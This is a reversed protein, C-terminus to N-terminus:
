FNIRLGGVVGLGIQADGGNWFVGPGAAVGFGVRRWKQPGPVEVIEKVLKTKQYVEIEDLAPRIGSVVARYNEDRYEKREVEQAAYLTDNIRLTDTVKVLEVRDIYKTVFVPKELRTTDRITLTDVRVSLGTSDFQLPHKQGTKYAAFVLGALLAGAAVLLAATKIRDYDM